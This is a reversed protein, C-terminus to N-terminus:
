FFSYLSAVTPIPLWMCTSTTLSSIVNGTPAGDGALSLHQPDILGKCVSQNLFQQQYLRFILFFPNQPKLQWHELLPLLRSAMSSSGCCAPLSGQNRALFLTVNRCSLILRPFIPIGSSCSIIGLAKSFCLPILTFNLSSPYSTDQFAAHGSPNYPLMLFRRWDFFTSKKIPKDLTKSFFSPSKQFIPESLGM